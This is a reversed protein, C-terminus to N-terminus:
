ESGYLVSHLYVEVRKYENIISCPCSEKQVYFNFEESVAFMLYKLEL